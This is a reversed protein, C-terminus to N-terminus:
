ENLPVVVIRRFVLRLAPARSTRTSIQLFINTQRVFTVVRDFTRHLKRSTASFFPLQRYFRVPQNPWICLVFWLVTSGWRSSCPGTAPNACFSREEGARRNGDAKGVIMAPQEWRKIMNCWYSVRVIRDFYRPARALACPEPSVYLTPSLTEDCDIM